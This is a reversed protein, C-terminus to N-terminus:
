GDGVRRVQRAGAEARSVRRDHDADLADLLLEVTVPSAPESTVRTLADAIEKADVFGDHDEDIAEFTGFREWLARSFAEVLLVKVGRGSAKPPIRSPNEKAFRVLPENHDMGDFLDRVLAVRYDRAEDLPRGGVAVLDRENKVFLGDDLQLFGGSEAPAHARSAAIANKLVGGPLPVVVVENDFPVEGELDGYTFHAHYERAGRIAGGNTVCAEAGLTDRLLSCLLTGLTTQQARTGVSSLTADPGLHLVGGPGATPGCTFLTAAQLAEVARM